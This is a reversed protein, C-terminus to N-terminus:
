VQKFIRNYISNKWGLHFNHVKDRYSVLCVRGGTQINVPLYTRHYCLVQSFTLCYWIKKFSFWICNASQSQATSLLFFVKWYDTNALNCGVNVDCWFIRMNLVLPLDTVYLMWCSEVVVLYSMLWDLPVCGCVLCTLLLLVLPPQPDAGGGTCTARGKKHAVTRNFNALFQREWHAFVHSQWLAGHGILPIFPVTVALNTSSCRSLPTAGEEEACLCFTRASYCLGRVCVCKQSRNSMKMCSSVFCCVSSLAM